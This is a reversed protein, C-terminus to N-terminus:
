PPSFDHETYPDLHVKRKGTLGCHTQDHCFVTFDKGLGDKWLDNMDSVKRLHYFGKGVEVM